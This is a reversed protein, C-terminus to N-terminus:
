LEMIFKISTDSGKNDLIAGTPDRIVFTFSSLGTNRQSIITGYGNNKATIIDFTVRNLTVFYIADTEVGDVVAKYSRLNAIEPCNISLYDYGGLNAVINGTATLAKTSNVTFGIYRSGAGVNTITFQNVSNTITYKYTNSSYTTSFNGSSPVTSSNIIDEMAVTVAYVLYTYNIYVQSPIAVVLPTGKYTINMTNNAGTINTNDTWYSTYVLGTDLSTGPGLANGGCFYYALTGAAGSAITLNGGNITIITNQAAGYSVNVNVSSVTGNLAATIGTALTAATYYGPEIYVTQKADAQDLYTIDNNKFAEVNYYTNPISVSDVYLRKVDKIEDILEVSFNTGSTRSQALASDISLSYRQNLYSNSVNIQYSM